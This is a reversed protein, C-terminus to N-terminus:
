VGVSVRTSFEGSDAQLLSLTLARYHIMIEAFNSGMIILVHSYCINQVGLLLIGGFIALIANM